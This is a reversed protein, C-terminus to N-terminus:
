SNEAAIVVGRRNGRHFLIDRLRRLYSRGMAAIAARHLFFVYSRGMAAIAAM